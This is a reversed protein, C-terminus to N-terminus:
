DKKYLDWIVIHVVVFISRKKEKNEVGFNNFTRKPLIKITKFNTQQYTKKYVSEFNAALLTIQCNVKTYVDIETKNKLREVFLKNNRDNSELKSNPRKIFGFRYGAM